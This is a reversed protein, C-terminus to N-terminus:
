AWAGKCLMMYEQATFAQPFSPSACRTPHDIASLSKRASCGCAGNEGDVCFGRGCLCLSVETSEGELLRKLKSIGDQSVLRACRMSLEDPARM